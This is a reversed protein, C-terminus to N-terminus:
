VKLENSLIQMVLAAFIASGQKNPFFQVITVSRLDSTEM